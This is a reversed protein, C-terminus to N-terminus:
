YGKLIMYQGEKGWGGRSQNAKVDIEACLRKGDTGCQSLKVKGGKAELAAVSARLAAINGSSPVLLTSLGVIALLLLM